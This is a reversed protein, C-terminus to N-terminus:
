DLRRRQLIDAECVYLCMGILLLLKRRLLSRTTRLNTIEEWLADFKLDRSTKDQRLLHLELSVVALTEQTALLTAQTVHLIADKSEMDARMDAREMQWEAREMQWEARLTAIETTLQAVLEYLPSPSTPPSAEYPPPMLYDPLHCPPHRYPHLHEQGQHQVPLHFM